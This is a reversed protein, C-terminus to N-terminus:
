IFFPTLVTQGVPLPSADYGLRRLYAAFNESFGHVTYIKEPQCYDVIGLLESFDCHDSLPFVYDSGIKSMQDPYLAWGSFYATVAGVDERLIKVLRSRSNRPPAIMVWPKERKLLDTPMTEDWIRYGDGMKVGLESYIQSMVAVSTHLFMPEWCSFLYQLVQGKGLPYGMLVVPTGSEFMQAIMKSVDRYVEEHKPFIYSPHGYTTEMILTKCKALEAGRLFARPRLSIDGTYFVGDILFGTSGLIHGSNLLTISEYQSVHNGFLCGRALSLRRTADSSLVAVKGAPSHLHDAHAHSVLILDATEAETPDLLFKKNGSVVRVGNGGTISIRPGRM